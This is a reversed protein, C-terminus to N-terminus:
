SAHPTYCRNRLTSRCRQQSKTHSICRSKTSQPSRAPRLTCPRHLRRQNPRRSRFHLTRPTSLFSTLAERAEAKKGPTVSDELDYCITDVTLGRSKELMKNSSSPVIPPNSKTLTPDLQRVMFFLEVFSQLQPARWQAEISIWASLM